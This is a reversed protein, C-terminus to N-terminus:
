KLKSDQALAAKLRECITYRNTSAALCLGHGFRSCIEIKNRVKGDTDKKLHGVGNWIVFNESASVNPLSKIFEEVKKNTMQESFVCTETGTSNRKSDAYSQKMKHAM